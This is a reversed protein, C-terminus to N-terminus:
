LIGCMGSYYGLPVHHLKPSSKGTRTASWNDSKQRDATPYAAIFENIEQDNGALLRDRWQEIQHQESIAQANQNRIRALHTRIPEADMARLLKGIFKRQRKLAGHQTISQAQLVAELLQSPLEFSSLRGRPIAILEEGLDQLAASERKLQSKSARQPAFDADDDPDTM